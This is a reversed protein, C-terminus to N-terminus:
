RAFSKAILQYGAENPHVHDRGILLWEKGRFKRDLYVVEFGYYKAWTVIRLNANDIVGQALAMYLAYPGAPLPNYLTAVKVTAIPNLRRIEAGVQMLVQSLNNFIIPLQSTNISQNPSGILHLLDNSGITLTILSAQSVSHRINHNYQLLAFLGSTTLGNVGLNLLCLDPNHRRLFDAYLVPFSFATQVGYGVTISDGLALYLSVKGGSEIM